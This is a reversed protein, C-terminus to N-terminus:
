LNYSDEWGESPGGWEKAATNGVEDGIINGVQYKKMRSIIERIRLHKM